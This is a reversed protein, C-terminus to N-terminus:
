RPVPLSVPQYSSNLYFVKTVPVFGRYWTGDATIPVLASLKRPDADPALEITTRGPGLDTIARNWFGGTSTYWAPGTSLQAKFGLAVRADPHVFEVYLYRRPDAVQTGELGKYYAIPGDPRDGLWVGDPGIRDAPPRPDTRIKGERAIEVDTLRYSWPIEDLLGERAGEAPMEMLPLRLEYASTGDPTWDHNATFDRLYPHLGDYRGDFTYTADLLGQYTGQGSAEDYAYDWDIDAGRGYEAFRDAVSTGSEEETQYNTYVLGTATRQWGHVFPVDTFYADPRAFIIPSRAVVEYLPDGPCVEDYTIASVAAGQARPSSLEPRYRVTLTHQGATVPGLLVPYNEFRSGRYLIIEQNREGDLYLTIVASEAGAIAWDTGIGRARLTLRGEGDRDFMLTSSFIAPDRAPDTTVPASLLAFPESSGGWAGPASSGGQAGLAGPAGVVAFAQRTGVAAKAALSSLMPLAARTAIAPPLGGCGTLGFVAAVMAIRVGLRM